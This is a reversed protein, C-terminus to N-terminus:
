VRQWFAMGSSLGWHSKADEDPDVQAELFDDIDAATGVSAPKHTTGRMTNQTYTTGGRMVERQTIQRIGGSAELERRYTGVTDHHVGTRRAIERDSWKQWEPDILLTTVARRKDENTRQLGHKANAGVSFLVA